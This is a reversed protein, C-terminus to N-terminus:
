PLGVESVAATVLVWSAEAAETFIVTLFELVAEEDELVNVTLAGVMADTLGAVAKAPDAANVSVTVPAFKTVAETTIHPVVRSAVV